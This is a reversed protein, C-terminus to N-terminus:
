VPVHQAVTLLLSPFAPLRVPQHRCVLAPDPHQAKTQLRPLYEGGQLGISEGQGSPSATQVVDWADVAESTGILQRGEETM